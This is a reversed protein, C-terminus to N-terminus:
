TTKDTVVLYSVGGVTRERIFGREKLTKLCSEVLQDQTRGTLASLLPSVSLIVLSNGFDNDNSKLCDLVARRLIRYGRNIALVAGGELGTGFDDEPNDWFPRKDTQGTGVVTTTSM